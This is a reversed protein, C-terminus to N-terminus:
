VMDYIYYFTGSIATGLGLSMCVAYIVMLSQLIAVKSNAKDVTTIQLNM